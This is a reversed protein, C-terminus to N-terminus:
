ANIQTLFEDMSKAIHTNSGTNFNRDMKEYRKKAKSTLTISETTEAKKLFRTIFEKFVEEASSMGWANALEQAKALEQNKLQLRITVNTM